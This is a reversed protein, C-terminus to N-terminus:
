YRSIIDQFLEKTMGAVKKCTFKELVRKKSTKRLEMKKEDRLELYNRMASELADTDGPDVLYGNASDVVTAVAGIDSVIIPLEAYMAELTVTPMAEYLTPCVFCSVKSYIFHLDGDSVEGLFRVRLGEARAKLRSEEPGSGVVVLEVDYDRQIIKFADILYDIGKNKALRCVTLFCNKAEPVFGSGSLKIKEIYAPDVCHPIVRIKEIPYGIIKVIDDVLKGGFSVMMDASKLCHKNRINYLFHIAKDWISRLKYPELGFSNSVVPIEKKNGFWPMSVGLWYVADFDNDKIWNWAEQSFFMYGFIDPKIKTWKIEKVKFEHKFGPDVNRKSQSTVLWVDVGQRVLHNSLFAAFKDMGGISFPYLLRSFIALKM